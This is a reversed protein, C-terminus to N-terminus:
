GPVAKFAEFPEACEQCRYLARCATAGFAAVRAVRTAACRPCAPPGPPAIGAAALKRRGAATIDASTWPPTLSLRVVADPFGAAQLRRAVEAQLSAIAPCGLFTPALTVVVRGHELAVDRLVGLDAVTLMPLEPDVVTGAVRRAQELVSM